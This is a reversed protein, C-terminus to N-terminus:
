RFPADGMDARPGEGAMTPPPLETWSARPEPRLRHHHVKRWTTAVKQRTAQARRRVRRHGPRPVRGAQRRPRLLRQSRGRTRRSGADRRRPDPIDARHAEHPYLRLPADIRPPRERSFTRHSMEGERGTSRTSAREDITLLAPDLTREPEGSPTSSRGSAADRRVVSRAELGSRSTARRRRARLGLASRQRSHPRLSSLEPVGLTGSSSCTEPKSSSASPLSIM